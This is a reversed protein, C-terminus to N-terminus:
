IHHICQLVYLKIIMYAIGQFNSNNAAPLPPAFAQLPQPAFTQQQQQAFTQQQQPAFAQQPQPAFAQQPQPAFAQQPQPAFAQNPPATQNPQHFSQVYPPIAPTTYPMNSHSQMGYSFTSVTPQPVQNITNFQTQYTSM